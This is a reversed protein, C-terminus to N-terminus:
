RNLNMQFKGGFIDQIENRTRNIAPRIFPRFGTKKAPLPSHVIDNIGSQQFDIM